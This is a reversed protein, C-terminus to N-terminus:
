VGIAFVGVSCTMSVADGVSVSVTVEVRRAVSLGVNFAVLVRRGGVIVRIGVTKTGGVTVCGAGRTQQLIQVVPRAQPSEHM